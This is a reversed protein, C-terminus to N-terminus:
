GTFFSSPKELKTSSVILSTGAFVPRSTVIFQGGGGPIWTFNPTVLTKVRNDPLLEIIGLRDLRALLRTLEHESIDYRGIIQQPTWRQLLLYGVLLLRHDDVIEQEQAETLQMLTGDAQHGLQLVDHVNIGLLDCIDDVRQLSLIEASFWRKVTSESVALKRGVDAYTVGNVKLARKLGSIIHQSSPM